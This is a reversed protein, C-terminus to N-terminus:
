AGGDAPNTVSFKGQSGDAWQGDIFAQAKVLAPDTLSPLASVRQLM